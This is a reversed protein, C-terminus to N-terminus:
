ANSGESELNQLAAAFDLIMEENMIIVKSLVEDSSLGSECLEKISKLKQVAGTIVGVLSPTGSKEAVLLELARSTDGDCGASKGFELLGAEVVKKRSRPMKTSFTVIKERGNSPKEKGNM